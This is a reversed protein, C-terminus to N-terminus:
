LTEVTGILLYAWSATGGPDTIGITIAGTTIVNDSWAAGTVAYANLPQILCIIVNTLDTSLEGTTANDAATFVGYEYYLIPASVDTSVMGMLRAPANVKKTQSALAM